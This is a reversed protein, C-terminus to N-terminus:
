AAFVSSLDINQDRCLLIIQKQEALSIRQQIWRFQVPFLEAAKRINSFDISTLSTRHMKSRILHLVRDRSIWSGHELAQARKNESPFGCSRFPYEENDESKIDAFM